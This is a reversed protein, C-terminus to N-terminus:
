GRVRRFVLDMGGAAISGVSAEPKPHNFGLEPALYDVFFAGWIFTDGGETAV